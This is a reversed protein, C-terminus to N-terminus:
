VLTMDMEVPSRIELVGPTQPPLAQMAPCRTRTSSDHHPMLVLAHRGVLDNRMEWGDGEGVDVGGKGVVEIVEFLDLLLYGRFASKGPIESTATWRQEFRLQAM